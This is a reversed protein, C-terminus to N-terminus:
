VLEIAGNPYGWTLYKKCTVVHERMWEVNDTGKSCACIHPRDYRSTHSDDPDLGCRASIKFHDYGISYSKKTGSCSYCIYTRELNPDAALRTVEAFKLLLNRRTLRGFNNAIQTDKELLTVLRAVRDYPVGVDELAPKALRMQRHIFSDPILGEERGLFDLLLGGAVLGDFAICAPRRENGVFLGVCMPYEQVASLKNPRPARFMAVYAPAPTPVDPELELPYLLLIM